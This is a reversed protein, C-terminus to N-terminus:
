GLDCHIVGADTFQLGSRWKADLKSKTLRQLREDAVKLEALARRKVAPATGPEDAAQLAGEGDKVRAEADTMEFDTPGGKLLEGGVRDRCTESNADEPLALIQCRTGPIQKAALFGRKTLEMDCADKKRPARKQKPESRVLPSKTRIISAMMAVAVVISLATPTTRFYAAMARISDFTKRAVSDIAHLLPNPGSPQPPQLTYGPNYPQELVSGPPYDPYQINEFPAQM